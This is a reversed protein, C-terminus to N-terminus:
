CKDYAAYAFRRRTIKSEEIDLYELTSLSFVGRSAGTDVLVRPLPYDNIDVSIIM